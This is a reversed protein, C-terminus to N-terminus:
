NTGAVHVEDRVMEVAIGEPVNEVEILKYGHLGMAQLILTRAELARSPVDRISATAMKAQVSADVYTKKCEELTKCEQYWAMDALGTRFTEALDVEARALEAAIKADEEDHRRYMEVIRADRDEARQEDGRGACGAVLMTVALAACMLRKM